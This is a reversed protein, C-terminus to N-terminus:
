CFDAFLPKLTQIGATLSHLNQSSTEHKASALISVNGGVYLVQIYMYKTLSIMEPINLFEHM